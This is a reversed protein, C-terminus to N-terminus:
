TKGNKMLFYVVVFLLLFLGIIFNINTIESVQMQM